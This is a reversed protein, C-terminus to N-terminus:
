ILSGLVIVCHYQRQTHTQKPPNSTHAVGAGRIDLSPLANIKEGPSEAEVNEEGKDGM